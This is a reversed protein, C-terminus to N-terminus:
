VCYFGHESVALEMDRKFEEFTNYLTSLQLELTCTRAFPLKKEDIFNITIPNDFGIPPIHSSGTIFQLCNSLLQDDAEGIFKMLYDVIQQQNDTCHPISFLGQLSESSLFKDKLILMSKVDAHKTALKLIGLEELGVQIAHISALRKMIVDHVALQQIIAQCNSYILPLTIAADELKSFIYEIDALNTEETAALLADIVCKVDSTVVHSIPVTVQPIPTGIMVDLVPECFCASVGGHLFSHGFLRGIARFKGSLVHQINQSPVRYSGEFFGNTPDMVLHMASSFFDRTLGGADYGEEGEFSIKPKKCLSFSPDQYISVIQNLLSCDRIVHIPQEGVEILSLNHKQLM